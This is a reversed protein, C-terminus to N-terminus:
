TLVGYGERKGNVWEGKFIAGDEFKQVGYGERKYNVWRGEFKAGDTFM